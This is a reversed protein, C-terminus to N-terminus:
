APDGALRRVIRGVAIEFGRAVQAQNADWTDAFMFHGKTGRAAISKAIAWGASEAQKGSVGLKQRAWNILPEVPPMHPKTGLEVAVAYALPTGVRGQVAIGPLVQVDGIISARLTGFTTPTREQVEGQLHAVVTEVFQRLEGEVIEPAMTWADAYTRLADTDLEIRLM